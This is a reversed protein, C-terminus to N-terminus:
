VRYVENKEGRISYIIDEEPHLPLDADVESSFELTNQPSLGAKAALADLTDITEELIKDNSKNQIGAELLGSTDLSNLWEAYVPMTKRFIDSVSKSREDSENTLSMIWANTYDTHFKEEQLIKGVRDRLPRFSSDSMSNLLITLGTDIVASLSILELWNPIDSNLSRVSQYDDANREHVLTKDSEGMSNKLLGHLLRVHGLEDQAFNCTAIGSELTPTRFTWEGFHYGLLLKSDSISLLLSRFEQEVGAPLTDKIKEVM